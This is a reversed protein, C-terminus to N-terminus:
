FTGDTILQIAQSRTILEGCFHPKEPIREIMRIKCLDIAERTPTYDNWLNVVEGRSNIGSDPTGLHWLDANQYEGGTFGRRACEERILQYQEYVFALKDVFFMMHGRGGATNLRTQVTYAKPATDLRHLADNTVLEIAKSAIRPYENRAARLHEDILPFVTNIRTM